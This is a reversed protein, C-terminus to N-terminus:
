IHIAIGGAECIPNCHWEADDDFLIDFGHTFFFDKKGECATYIIKDEIALKKAVELIDVNRESGPEPPINFKQCAALYQEYSSRATMIWVDHGRSIFRGALEFFLPDTLTDDFDFAIKLKYNGLKDKFM